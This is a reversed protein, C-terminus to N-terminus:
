KENPFGHGIWANAYRCGPATCFLGVTLRHFQRLRVFIKLKKAWYKV